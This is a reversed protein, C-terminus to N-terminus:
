FPLRSYEGVYQTFVYMEGSSKCLSSAWEFTSVDKTSETLKVKSPLSKYTWVVSPTKSETTSKDPFTRKEPYTFLGVDTDRSLVSVVHRMILYEIPPLVIVFFSRNFLFQNDTEHIQKFTLSTERKLAALSPVIADIHSESLSPTAPSSDYSAKRAKEPVQENM